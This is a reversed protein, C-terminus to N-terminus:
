YNEIYDSITGSNNEVLEKWNIAGDENCFENIFKMNFKNVVKGYEVDFLDNNEKTRHGLPEIIDQYFDKDGSISDSLELFHHPISTVWSL